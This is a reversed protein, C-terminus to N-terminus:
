ENKLTEAPNVLATRLARHGITILGVLLSLVLAWVFVGVGINVRYAFYGLWHYMLWWAVPVAIAFALLIQKVFSGSLHLMLNSVTAGLVKRVSIEKTRRQFIFSALGFLGLCAIFV